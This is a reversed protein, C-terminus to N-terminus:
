KNMKEIIGLLRDIQRDKEELQKALVDIVKDSDKTELVEGEKSVSLHFVDMLKARATKPITKGAEWNKITQVSSGMIQALQEQTMGFKKRLEKINLDNM